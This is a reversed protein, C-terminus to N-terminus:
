VHYLYIKEIKESLEDLEILGSSTFWVHDFKVQYDKIQADVTLFFRGDKEKEIIPENFFIEGKVQPKEILINLNGMGQKDVRAFNHAYELMENNFKYDNLNIKIAHNYNPLTRTVELNENGIYGVAENLLKQLISAKLQFHIESNKSHGDLSYVSTIVLLGLLIRMM